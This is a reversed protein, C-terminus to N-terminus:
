SLHRSLIYSLNLRSAFDDTAHSFYTRVFPFEQHLTQLSKLLQDASSQFLGVLLAEDRIAYRITWDDFSPLEVSMLGGIGEIEACFDDASGETNLVIPTYQRMPSFALATPVLKIDFAPLSALHPNARV